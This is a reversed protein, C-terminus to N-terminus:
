LNKTQWPKPMINKRPTNLYKLIFCFLYLLKVLTHGYQTCHTPTRYKALAFLDEAYTIGPELKWDAEKGFSQSWLVERESFLVVTAHTKGSM